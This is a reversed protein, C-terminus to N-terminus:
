REEKLRPLVFDQPNSEIVRRIKEIDSILVNRWEYRHSVSQLCSLLNEISKLAAYYHDMSM